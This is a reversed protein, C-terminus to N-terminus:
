QERVQASVEVPGARQFTLTLTITDGPQLTRRVEALVLHYGGPNFRVEGHAPIAVQQVQRMSAVNDKIETRHMEVAGAAASTVGTLTDDGDGTNAITLYVVSSNGGGMMMSATQGGQASTTPTADSMAATAPRAWADRVSIVSPGGGCAALLGVLALLISVIGIHRWGFM